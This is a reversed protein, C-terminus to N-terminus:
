RYVGIFTVKLGKATADGAQTVGISIEADSDVDPTGVAAPTSATTTTTEGNDFILPALLLIGPVGDLKMDVTLEVGSVQAESLSARVEQLTVARPMRFRVKDDGITVVDGEGSAAVILEFPQNARIANFETAIRTIADTVREALTAM